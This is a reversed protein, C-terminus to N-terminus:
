DWQNERPCPPQDSAFSLHYVVVSQECHQTVPVSLSCSLARYWRKMLNVRVQHNVLVLRRGDDNFAPAVLSPAAAAESAKEQALRKLLSIVRAGWREFAEVAVPTFQM